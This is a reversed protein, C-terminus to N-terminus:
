NDPFNHRNDRPHAQQRCSGFSTRNGSNGSPSPSRRDQPRRNDHFRDTTDTTPPNQERRYRMLPKHDGKGSAQIELHRWDWCRKCYYNACERCYYPGQQLNCSSCIANDIYPDIQIKKNFKQTKIDVFAAQIAKNYSKSNSFTVRASGMPYKFKDTDIGVYAVHNFLDHMVQALGEATLMGHLAGVFVTKQNDLRQSPCRVYNTDAIVWPIVQVEKSRMRRSSINFYFKGGSSFDHTCASLLAKVNKDNEFIIYVYGAKQSGSSSSNQERLRDKPWQVQISGYAAFAEVLGQDTIDWPVGGLFVKPSYVPNKHLKSPLIGSWTCRPESQAASNRHRRADEELPDYHVVSPRPIPDTWRPDNLTPQFFSPGMGPLGVSSPMQNQRSLEGLIHLFQDTRPLMQIQTVPSAHNWNFGISARPLENRTLANPSGFSLNSPHRLQHPTERLLNSQRPNIVPIPSGHLDQRGLRIPTSLDERSDFRSNNRPERVSLGAYGSDPSLRRVRVQDPTRLSSDSYQRRPDEDQNGPYSRKGTQVPSQNVEDFPVEIERLSPLALSRRLNSVLSAVGQTSRRDDSQRQHIREDDLTTLQRAQFSERSRPFPSDSWSRNRMTPQLDFGPPAASEDDDELTRQFMSAIDLDARNLPDQNWTLNPMLSNHDYDRFGTTTSARPRSSPLNLSGNFRHGLEDMESRFSSAPNANDDRSDGSYRSGQNSLLKSVTVPIFTGNSQNDERSNDNGNSGDMVEQSRMM